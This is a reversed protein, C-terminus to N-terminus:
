RSPAGEVWERHFYRLEEDSLPARKRLEDERAAQEGAPVLMLAWAWLIRRDVAGRAADFRSWDAASWAEGRLGARLLGALLRVGPPRKADDAIAALEAEHGRADFLVAAVLAPQGSYSDAGVAHEIRAALPRTDHPWSTTPLVFDRGDGLACTALAFGVLARAQAVPAAGERMHLYIQLGRGADLSAPELELVSPQAPAPQPRPRPAPLRNRYDPQRATAREVDLAGLWGAYAHRETRVRAFWGDFMPLLPKVRAAIAEERRRFVEGERSPDSYAGVNIEMAITYGKRALTFSGYTGVIGERPWAVTAVVVAVTVALKARM